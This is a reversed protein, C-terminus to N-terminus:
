KKRGTKKEAEIVRLALRAERQADDLTKSRMVADLYARLKDITGTM